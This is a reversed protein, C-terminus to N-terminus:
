RGEEQTTHFCRTIPSVWPADLSSIMKKVLATEFPHFVGPTDPDHGGQTPHPVLINALDEDWRSQRLAKEDGLSGRLADAADTFPRFASPCDHNLPSSAQVPLGLPAPKSVPSVTQLPLDLSGTLTRQLDSLSCREIPAEITHGCAFKGLPGPSMTQLRWEGPSPHFNHGGMQSARLCAEEAQLLLDLSKLGTVSREKIAMNKMLLAM